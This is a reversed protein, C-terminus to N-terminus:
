NTTVVVKGVQQNSEPYRHANVIQSLPFTRDIRPRLTGKALHAAIFKEAEPRLLRDNVFEYITYGRVTLGKQFATFLPFPTSESSVWGYEIIQAGHAACQALTELFPGAVADFILNAGKGDTYRHVAAPLTEETSAIVEAAGLDLLAQKKASTRTVAIPRAGLLNALKIAALGVSRSAATILINQAARVKGYHILAGWVTLYQTWLSAGELPSLNSPYRVVAHAPVIASEGYVGHSSM